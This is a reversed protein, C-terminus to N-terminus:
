IPVKGDFTNERAWVEGDKMIRKGLYSSFIVTATTMCVVIVIVMINSYLVIQDITLTSKIMIVKAVFEAMLLVGWAGCIVYCFKRYFASNHWIWESRQMSKDNGEQDKWEVPPQEIMLQQTFLFVIPRVTFWKTSIPILTLLFLVSVVATVTSDRLLTLRADGSIASLVASIIFGAVFICGLVDIRRKKWFVYFVHLLPPIGSIILAVLPTLWIKLIYYLALPIGVNIILMLVTPRLYTWYLKFVQSKTLKKEEKHTEGRSNEILSEDDASITSSPLKSSSTNHNFANSGNLEEKSNGSTSHHQM